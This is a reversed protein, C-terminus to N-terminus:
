RSFSLAIGVMAASLLATLLLVLLGDRIHLWRAQEHTIPPRPKM